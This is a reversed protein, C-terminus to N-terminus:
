DTFSFFFHEYRLCNSLTQDRGEIGEIMEKRCKGGEAKNDKNVRVSEIEKRWSGQWPYLHNSPNVNKGKSMHPPLGM